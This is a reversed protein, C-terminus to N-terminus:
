ELSYHARKEILGSDRTVLARDILQYTAWTPQPDRTFNSIGIRLGKVRVRRTGDVVLVIIVCGHGSTESGETLGCSKQRSGTFREGEDGGRDKGAVQERMSIVSMETISGKGVKEQKM